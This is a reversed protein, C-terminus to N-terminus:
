DDQRAEALERVAEIVRELKAGRSGKLLVWDGPATRAWVEEAAAAADAAIVASGAGEAYAVAFDGLAVVDIGLEGARRGSNRHADEADDGLELMDGLVAVAGAGDAAALEAVTALAATLAPPNSNYCDVLLKRGGLELREGRMSPPRASALYRAAEAAPVGVALCAALACCANIANHRGVLALEVEVEHGRVDVRLRSGAGAPEYSLLRVDAGEEDGFSLTSPAAMAFRELRRDEAPYIAVGDDPLRGFIEAKGAVIDDISGVVGVHATGANTVVGVDPEAIECLYDIQGLGRMAMEIVGIRHFPRLELLTLPVGTENNLSGASKHVHHGRLAAAILEKTTTKGASGTVGILKRGWDRRLKRAINGLARRSDSVEIRAVVSPVRRGREVMLAVAGAEIAQDCFDHGDFREGPIAVYLDGPAARRGDIVVRRVDVDDGLLSGGADRALESARLVRREAIAAAAVERDDFHIKATGLIQYDEHGKGAIVVVDGPAAAAVAASIAVRRDADVYFPDPVAAVIQDIIAEPNETRPNDSTVIVLDARAAAAAGMLPRKAPDRDGGCGFVCILRGRTLPRMADLVNALADPTHAYDVLVDLDADNAVRDVRGPVGPMAAIGAAIEAHELGLAEGVGVALALNDVNYRGLLARSAVEIEGRPTELRARVGDITAEIEVARIEADAGRTSVRLVRHDGAAEIMAPAAPDDVNIVAVGDDALNDAFLIEKAERYGAMDGHIDLHDQTLNSFAAVEFRVGALRQMSLAISSVELVAAAAGSGAIEGFMRHLLEPTPTTYPAEHTEGGYRYSVTGIVGPSRGAAALISEILFSTTTKGNTGTVGVLVLGAAPDGASAAALYGLARAGDGVVLQPVSLDDRPREVAVAAAGADVAADVFEHGDARLGRVAVYLDGAEVARSDARIAAVSVDGDGVLRAGPVRDALDSLKV